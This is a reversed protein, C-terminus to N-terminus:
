EDAQRARSVGESYARLRERYELPVSGRYGEGLDRMQDKPQSDQRLPGPRLGLSRLAEDLERHAPEASPTDSEAAKMREQWRQVFERLDEESWGLQDLL